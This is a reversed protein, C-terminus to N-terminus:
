IVPDENQAELWDIVHMEEKPAWTASVQVWEEEEGRQSMLVTLEAWDPCGIAMEDLIAKVEHANLLKNVRNLADAAANNRGHQYKITFNFNTLSAM